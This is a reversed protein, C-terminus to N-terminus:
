VMRAQLKHSLSNVSVSNYFGNVVISWETKAMIWQSSSKATNSYGGGDVFFGELNANSM